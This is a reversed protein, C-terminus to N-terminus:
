TCIVSFLVMKPKFYLVRGSVPSIGKTASKDEQMM